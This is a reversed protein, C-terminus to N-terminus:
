TEAKSAVDSFVALSNLARAFGAYPATQILVERIEDRDLGIRLASASFKRLQSELGLSGFCALACYFREKRTLGERLWLDGYLAQIALQYLEFTIPQDPSAYGSQAAEGHVELIFREGRARLAELDQDGPAEEPIEIGRSEFIEDAIELAREASNFGGYLGAHIITEVLARPDLGADLAAPILGRM